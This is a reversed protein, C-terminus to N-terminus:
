FAVGGLFNLIDSRLYDNQFLDMQGRLDFTATTVAAKLM